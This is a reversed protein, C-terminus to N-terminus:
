CVGCELLATNRIDEIADNLVIMDLATGNIILLDFTTLLTLIVYGTKSINDQSILLNHKLARVIDVTKSPERVKHELKAPTITKPTNDRSWHFLNGPTKNTLIFTDGKAM